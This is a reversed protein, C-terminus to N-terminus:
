PSRSTPAEYTLLAKVTIPENTMPVDGATVRFQVTFSEGTTLDSSVTSSLAKSTFGEPLDLSIGVTDVKTAGGNVFRATLIASEGSRLNSDDLEGVIYAGEQVNENPEIIYM